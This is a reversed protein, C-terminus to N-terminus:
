FTGRLGVSGPGILPEVRAAPARAPERPRSVLLGVVGVGVGVVGLAVTANSVNALTNAAALDPDHLLGCDGSTNCSTKLASTRSLSLGGTIAAVVLSAGGVTFGAIALPSVGRSPSPAPPPIPAAIPPTIPGGPSAGAQLVLPVSLVVGENVTVEVRATTFGPASASIVHLGPNVKRPEAATATPLAVGDVTVIVGPIDSRDLVVQVSPIRAALKGALETAEARARAHYPSEDPQQPLRAVQMAKDRAELLLGAAAQARAVAVGTMPLHMLADAALYARAAAAPDAAEMRQDGKDMLARATEKDAASPQPQAMAPASLTLAGVIWVAGLGGRGLLRALRARQNVVVAPALRM